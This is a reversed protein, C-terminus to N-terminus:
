GGAIVVVGPAGGSAGFLNSVFDADIWIAEPDCLERVIERFIGEAQHERGASTLGMGVAIIEGADRGSAGLAERAAGHIGRRNIERGNPGHIHDCPTGRGIGLITGDRRAIIAKTSTQGGDVALVIDRSV